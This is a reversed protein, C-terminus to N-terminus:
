CSMAGSLGGRFRNHWACMLVYAGITGYFGRPGCSGVGYKRITAECAEKIEPCSAINLFNFSGFNIVDRGGNALVHADMTSEVQISRHAKKLREPLAPVLPEPKWERILEEEEQLRM